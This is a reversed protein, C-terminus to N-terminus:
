SFLLKVGQNTSSTTSIWQMGGTGIGLVVSSSTSYGKLSSVDFAMLEASTGDKSWLTCSGGSDGGVVDAISNLVVYQETSDPISVTKTTGKAWTGSFTGKLAVQGFCGLKILSWKVGSEGPEKWLIRAQGFSATTLRSINGAEPRVHLLSQDTVNVKAQVIGAVAARGIAFRAIPEVAVCFSQTRSNQTSTALSAVPTVGQILPMEQFQALNASIGYGGDSADTPPIRMGAIELIGGRDVDGSSNNYAYVWQYPASHSSSGAGVAGTHSGLVM